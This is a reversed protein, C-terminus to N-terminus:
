NNWTDRVRVLIHEEDHFFMAAGRVYRRNDDAIIIGKMGDEIMKFEAAHNSCDLNDNFYMEIVVPNEFMEPKGTRLIARRTLAHWYEADKKRM